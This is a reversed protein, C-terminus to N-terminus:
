LENLWYKRDLSRYQVAEAVHPLDILVSGDLDAITRSVKLVRDYTRASFSFQEFARELIGVASSTMECMERLGASPINANAHIDTGAFRKQQLTRAQEVRLRIQASSESKEANSLDQFEVPPVEIHLDLRDLLPGSIKGLYQNVARLSCICPRSSHGFYGCPCPNMAAVLMVNCPYSISGSVRSITVMNDELPQRLIEMASRSFEPLEDLFLVGNHAMSIEGPRPVTGGGSLGATSVTHHPSRFPRTQVLAHEKDMFGAISHIKTTEIAEDFTMTPLISPLRKALMSKGSGPPGILLINHGGAAAIELARKAESQGKVDAFDLDTTLNAPKPPSFPYPAVMKEGTLHQLLETIHKFAFVQIDKVISAETANEWPIFVSTFGLEKAKLIMSLVGRAPRLDGSLSLEGIFVSDTVAFTLQRNAQLLSIFIPLDYIPGEKRKDAPALNITIRSVPFSFGCNKLASRVRDRSERVSADPLGVLEFAPLGPSLDTEVEVPFAEMGFLGMSYTKAVM